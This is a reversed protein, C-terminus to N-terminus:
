TWTAKAADPGSKRYRDVNARGIKRGDFQKPLWKAAKITM